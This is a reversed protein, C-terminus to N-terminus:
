ITALRADPDVAVKGKKQKKMRQLRAELSQIRKSNEAVTVNMDETVHKIRNSGTTKKTRLTKVAPNRRSFGEMWKRGLPQSDGGDKLIRQAM